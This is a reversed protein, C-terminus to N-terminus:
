IIGKWGKELIDKAIQKWRSEVLKYDVIDYYPVDPIPCTWYCYYCDTNKCTNYLFDALRNIENETAM